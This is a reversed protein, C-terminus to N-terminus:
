CYGSGNVYDDHAIANQINGITGYFKDVFNDYNKELRSLREELEKNKRNLKNIECRLLQNEKRHRKSM